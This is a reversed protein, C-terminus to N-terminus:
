GFGRKPKAKPPQPDREAQKAREAARRLTRSTTGPGTLVRQGLVSPALNLPLDRFPSV